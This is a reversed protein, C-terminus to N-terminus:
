YGSDSARRRKELFCFSWVVTDLIEQGRPLVSLFAPARTGTDRNPRSKSFAAIPSNPTDAAYLRLTMGARNGKWQYKRGQSDRFSVTESFLPGSHLVKGFRVPKDAGVAIKDFGMDSWHLAALVEGDPREVTTITGNSFATQVRYLVRGDPGRITCNVPNDDSFRFQ